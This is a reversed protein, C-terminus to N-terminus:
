GEEGLGRPGYGNVAECYRLILSEMPSTDPGLSFEQLPIRELNNHINVLWSILTGQGVTNIDMM